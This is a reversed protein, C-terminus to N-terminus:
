IFPFLARVPGHFDFQSLLRTYEDKPEVPLTVQDEVKYVSILHASARGAQCLHFSVKREIDQWLKGVRQVRDEMFGGAQSLLGGFYDQWDHVSGRALRLQPADLEAPLADKPGHYLVVLSDRAEESEFPSNNSSFVSQLLSPLHSLYPQFRALGLHHAVLSEAEGQSVTHGEAPASSPPAPSFYVQSQALAFAPALSLLSLRMPLAPRPADHHQALEHM